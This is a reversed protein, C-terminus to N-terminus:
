SSVRVEATSLISKSFHTGENKIAIDDDDDDDDDDDYM